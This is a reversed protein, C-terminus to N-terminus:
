GMLLGDSVLQPEGIGLVAEVPRYVVFRAGVMSLEWGGCAIRGIGGEGRVSHALGMLESRMQGAIADM